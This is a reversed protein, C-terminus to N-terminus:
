GNDVAYGSLLVEALKTSPHKVLPPEAVPLVYFVRRLTCDLVVFEYPSTPIQAWQGVVAWLLGCDVIVGEGSRVLVGVWLM